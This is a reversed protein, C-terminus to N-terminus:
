LLWMQAGCIVGSFGAMCLLVFGLLFELLCCECIELNVTYINADNIPAELLQTELYWRHSVPLTLYARIIPSFRLKHMKHSNEIMFFIITTVVDRGQIQVKAAM